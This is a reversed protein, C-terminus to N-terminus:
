VQMILSHLNLHMILIVTESFKQKVGNKGDLRHMLKLHGYVAKPNFGFANMKLLNSSILISDIIDMTFTYKDKWLVYRRM